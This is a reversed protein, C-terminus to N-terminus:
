KQANAFFLQEGHVRFENIAAQGIPSTLWDIFKTGEVVKTHPHREPNVLIVSYQNNLPPDGEFLVKLDSRNSFALWTGRDTLTYALSASAMNLTAGMGSGIERYWDTTFNEPELGATRWLDQEKKHTGSNDGRSIFLESATKITAMAEASDLLANMQAPDNAPGVIVFDNYMVEIREIGLGKNLFEQESPQHHVMLVDANGDEAIKIAQGTGVAVVRVDIDHQATFRESLYSLLGSNETSTTSALVIFPRDKAMLQHASLIAWFLVMLGSLM